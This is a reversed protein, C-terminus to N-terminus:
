RRPTRRGKRVKLPLNQHPALHRSALKMKITPAKEAGKFADAKVKPETRGPANEQISILKMSGMGPIAEQGKPSVLTPTEEIGELLGDLFKLPMIEFYQWKRTSAGEPNVILPLLIRSHVPIRLRPLTTYHGQIGQLGQGEIEQLRKRNTQPLPGVEPTAPNQIMTVSLNPCKKTHGRKM